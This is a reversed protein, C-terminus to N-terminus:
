GAFAAEAAKEEDPSAARTEALGVLAGQFYDCGWDVLTAAADESQVWEAVTELGLERALELLARVFVRDDPATELNAVFSGDIKVMDVGLRRLNRFSTYGAGFDDIAVKCGFGKVRAVFRRAAEVDQIAASETIEVILRSGINNRMEAAFTALWVPDRVTSASVNLSLVLDPNARLESAALEMVRHDILRVLDLKEAVTLITMADIERGCPESVRVLCEQFVVQRTKAGVVPQFALKVRRDNLASVILDTLRVNEKRRAESEISPQYVRFTGRGGERALQLAELAGSIMEHMDRAHRPAIIGGATVSITLPGAPTEIPTERVANVFRSAAVALDDPSCDNLVIGFKTDSFRGIIDSARKRARLREAVARIAQDAVNFGYSRNVRSLEDIGILLLGISSRLRTARELMDDLHKCLRDRNMEGTLADTASLEALRQERLYRETIVRVVGAARSPKGDPGAFWRGTDEIWVPVNRHPLRIAYCLQYAVGSGNDRVPSGIIVDFRNTPSVHDLISAFSRGSGIKALSEVGLVQVANASWRLEDSALNWVYAADGAAASIAAADAPTLVAIGAETPAYETNV